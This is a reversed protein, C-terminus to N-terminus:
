PVEFDLQPRLFFHFVDEFDNDNYTGSSGGRTTGFSCTNCSVGCKVGATILTVLLPFFTYTVPSKACRWGLFGLSHLINPRASSWSVSDVPSFTSCEGPTDEVLEGKRHEYVFGTGNPIRSTNADKM